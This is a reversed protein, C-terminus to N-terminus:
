ARCAAELGARPLTLTARTGTGAGSELRLTGGLSEACARALFLGLGLGRGPEKTTFFPDGAQALVEAPMGGGRDEIDVRLSAGEAGFRVVVPAAEDSADLANKVLASLCQLLRERPVRLGAAERKVDVEVRRGRGAGLRDRLPEALEDVRAGRAGDPAEARASLKGLIEDCREVEELILRMDELIAEAGSLRSAALEVERAAVSITGLPTGLEHAAGAALTTISALRANRAASERLRAIQERQEAITTAIKRLFYAVLSAALTFAVWMEYLHGAFRGGHQAHVHVHAPPAAEPLAFLAAFSVVSALALLATWATGLVVAALAVYVLYLVSLPNTAGGSSALLATLLLADLSLVGGVLRAATPDDARRRARRALWLNSAAGALLAGLLPGWLVPEDFALRALTVALFQGALALWRLRALWPLSVQPEFSPHM